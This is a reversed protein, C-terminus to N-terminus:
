RTGARTSYASKRAAGTTLWLAAVHRRSRRSETEVTPMPARGTYRTCHRRRGEHVQLLPWAAAARPTTMPNTSSRRHPRSSGARASSATAAVAIKLRRARARPLTRLVPVPECAVTTTTMSISNSISEVLSERLLCRTGTRRAPRAYTSSWTGSKTM